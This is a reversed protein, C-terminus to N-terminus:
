TPLAQLDIGKLASDLDLDQKVKVGMVNTYSVGDQVYMEMPLELTAAEAGDTAPISM